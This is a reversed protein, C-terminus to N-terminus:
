TNKSITPSTAAGAVFIGNTFSEALMNNAVSVQNNGSAIHVMGTPNLPGPFGGFRLVANSISGSAGSNFVIASWASNADDTFSSFTIPQASTGDAVLRGNVFFGPIQSGPCNSYAFKVVVGPAITLTAGSAVAVGGC